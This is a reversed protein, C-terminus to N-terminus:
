KADMDLFPHGPCPVGELDLQRDKPGIARGRSGSLAAHIENPAGAYKAASKVDM